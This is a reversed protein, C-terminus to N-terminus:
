AGYIYISKFTDYSQNFKSNQKKKPESEEQPSKLNM